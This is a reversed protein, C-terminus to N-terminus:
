PTTDETLGPTAGAPTIEIETGLVEGFSGRLPAWSSIFGTGTLNPNTAGDAGSTPKFAYTFITSAAWLAHITAYTQSSAFDQKFQARIPGTQRIIPVFKVATQGMCPGDEASRTSVNVDIGTCHASLAVANITAVGDTFAFHAM